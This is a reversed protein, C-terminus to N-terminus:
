QKAKKIESGATKLARLSFGLTTRIEPDNLERLLGFLSKKDKVPDLELQTIVRSFQEMSKLFGPNTLNKVIQLITGMNNVIQHMDDPSFNQRIIGMARQFEKLYEFLGKQELEHLLHIFDIAMEKGIPALDTALDNLSELMRMLRNINPINKVIGLILQKLEDMDLEIGSNDLVKVTSQYADKALISVDSILDDTAQSKLRQQNVYELLLDLKSNIENIQIQINTDAM